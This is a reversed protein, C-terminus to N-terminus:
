PNIRVRFRLTITGGPNLQNTTSGCTVAGVGGSAPAAVTPATGSLQSAECRVTPQSADYTTYPPVTDHLSVNKVPAAGNNTVIARYVICDGPKADIAALSNPETTNDIACVGATSVELRQWKNVVVQGVTVTVTDTISQSGCNPTPDLDTVTLLASVGAGGPAGSNPPYVRAILKHAAGAALQPLTANGSADLPVLTDGSDMQGPVSGNDLYLMLHWPDAGTQAPNITANVKLGGVGCSLTGNNLVSHAFDAVSGVGVQRSGGAPSLVFGRTSPATVSIQTRVQDSIITGGGAATTSRARFYLDLASVDSSTSLPTVVALVRAQGGAAVTVTTIPAAALSTAVTSNFLYYRITWGTPPNNNLFGQTLSSDLSFTLASADLNRVYLDYAASGALPNTGASSTQGAGGATVALAQSVANLGIGPGIDVNAVGAATSTVDVLGVVVDTLVANVADIKAADNSSRATAKVTLNAGSAVQANSPLKAQLVVNVSTNNGAVPDTEVDTGGSSQLLTVGDAHFWTFLTGAPFTTTAQDVALKFSDTDNGTNVVPITFSVTSGPAAKAITVTDAATPTGPIADAVPGFKVGRSALVTFTATLNTTGSGVGCGSTTAAAALTLATCSESSYLGNSTLAGFSAGAAVQVQFSLTGSAGVPVSKILAEVKQGSVQFAIKDFPSSGAFAGTQPVATGSTGGSWVATGAQYTIGAPLTDSLYIDGAAAGTNTYTITYTTFTGGAGSSPTAGWLGGAATSAVAPASHTLQASFAAATALNVTDTVQLFQPAYGISSDGATVKVLGTNSWPAAASPLSYVVVYSYSQKEAITIPQSTRTAGALAPGGILSTTNDALGDANLDAFVDISAFQNADAPNDQVEITFTDSGNGTNTITHMAAVSAGAGGSRTVGASVSFAGVQKVSIQVINSTAVQAAGDGDLYSASAQSQIVTSASPTQSQAVAVLPAVLQSAIVLAATARWGWHGRHKTNSNM